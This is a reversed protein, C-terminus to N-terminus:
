LLFSGISSPFVCTNRFAKGIREPLEPYVRDIYRNLDATYGTKRTKQDDM